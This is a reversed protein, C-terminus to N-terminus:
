AGVLLRLGNIARGFFGAQAVSQAAVLPMVQESGNDFKAVLQAVETGKKVPAKVPGSYRVVLKYRPADTAPLALALLRPAVVTVRSQQGLQVPLTAVVPRANYLPQARWEDFGWNLLKLSEEERAAMSPLGAVVMVLRRGDREATGTFCYGAEATHGTKIGDAGSIRGLIPNRNRQTIGNWRFTRFGYYQRYLEPFDHITRAGLLALDRATTLTRGQDPWGTASGFTSKTMGLKQATINMQVVFAAESGAIGEALVVAADNGSLTVVGHLLDAVKVNANPKLFMTSGSNNWKTWTAPRVVFKTDAKLKGNQILDFVVYVTMMKAMSAPPIRQDSGKDFLVAGSSIDVLYAIPAASEYQPRAQLTSASMVAIIALVFRM